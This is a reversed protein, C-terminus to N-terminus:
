YNKLSASESGSVIELLQFDKLFSLFFQKKTEGWFSIKDELYKIKQKWNKTMYFFPKM